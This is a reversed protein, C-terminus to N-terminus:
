DHQWDPDEFEIMDNKLKRAESADMCYIARMVDGCHMEYENRNM